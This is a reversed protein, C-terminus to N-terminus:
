PTFMVALSMAAKAVAPSKNASTWRLFVLYPHGLWKIKGAAANQHGTSRGTDPAGSALTNGGHPCVYQRDISVFGAQGCQQSLKRTGSM